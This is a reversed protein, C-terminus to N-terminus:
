AETALDGAKDETPKASKNKAYVALDYIETYGCLSCTVFRYRGGGRALIDPLLGAPLSVKRVLAKTNRCKPCRFEGQSTEELDM